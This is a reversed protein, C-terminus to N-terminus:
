HQLSDEETLDNDELEAESNAELQAAAIDDGLGIALAKCIEMPSKKVKVNKRIKFNSLANLTGKLKNLPKDRSKALSNHKIRSSIVRPFAVMTHKKLDLSLTLGSQNSHPLM